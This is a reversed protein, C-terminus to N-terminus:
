SPLARRISFSPSRHGGGAALWGVLLSLERADVPEAVHADFAAALASDDRGGADGGVALMPLPHGANAALARARRAFAAGDAPSAHLAVVVVHPIVACLVALAQDASQLTTTTAGCRELVTATLSGSRACADVILVHAGGLRAFGVDDVLSM